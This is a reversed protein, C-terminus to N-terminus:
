WLLEMRGELVARRSRLLLDARFGPPPSGGDRGPKPKSAPGPGGDDARRHSPPIPLQAVGMLRRMVEVGAHRAVLDRGLPGGSAEGAALLAQARSPDQRALALHGVAVGYDFEPDGFFCFEPDIVRIGRPTDLWSGPFFDGHLLCPGDRLYERGLDTVTAVYRSDGKLRAAAAELGPEFADLRLGNEPALPIDYIHQHNLKRMERNALTPDPHGRTAKHLSGLYHALSAVDEGTLSGGAYLGSQDRAGVLDELLLTRSEECAGLLRPMRRAVGDIAATTEYFRREFHFREWPAAIHDYKEVWPRAQKVILSRGTTTKVRLTLNMNGEGAKECAVLGEDGGIWGRHHLFAEVQRLDDVRLLPFDPNERLFEQRLSM